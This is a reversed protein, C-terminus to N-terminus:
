SAKTLEGDGSHPIAGNYTSLRRIGEEVQTVRTVTDSIVASAITTAAGTAASKAESVVQGQETELTLLSDEVVRLRGDLVTITEKVTEHLRYLDQADRAFKFIQGIANCMLM